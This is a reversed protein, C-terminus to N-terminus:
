NFVVREKKDGVGGAERGNGEDGRRDENEGACGVEGRILCRVCGSYREKNVKCGVRDIRSDIERDLVVRIYRSTTIFEQMEKDVRGWSREQV